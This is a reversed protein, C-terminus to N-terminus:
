CQYLVTKPNQSAAKREKCQGNRVSELRHNGMLFHAKPVNGVCQTGVIIAQFLLLWFLKLVVSVSFSMMKTYFSPWFCWLSAGYRRIYGSIRTQLSHAACMLLMTRVCLSIWKQMLLHNTKQQWPWSYWLEPRLSFYVSLHLNPWMFCFDEYLIIFNPNMINHHSVQTVTRNASVSPNRPTNIRISMRTVSMASPSWVPAWRPWALEQFVCLTARYNM